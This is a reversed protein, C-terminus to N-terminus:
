DIDCLLHKIEIALHDRSASFAPAAVRPLGAPFLVPIASFEALV